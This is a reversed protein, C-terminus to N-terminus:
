VFVIVLFIGTLFGLGRYVKVNKVSLERADDLALKLRAMTIKINNKEHERDGCGLKKSFDLLIEMDEKSLFLENGFRDAAKQWIKKMDICRQEFISKSIYLLMDRVAGSCNKGMRELADSLTANRFEIDLLLGDMVGYFEELQKVRSKFPISFLIGLCGCGLVAFLCSFITLVSM